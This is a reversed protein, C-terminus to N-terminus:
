LKELYAIVEATTYRRETAIRRKLEEDSVEPEDPNVPEWGSFDIKPIFRGIVQGSPDYLEVSETLGHLVQVLPADVTIKSM